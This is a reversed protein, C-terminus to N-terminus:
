ETFTDLDLEKNAPNKQKLTIPKKYVKGPFAEPAVEGFNGEPQHVESFSGDKIRLLVAAQEDPVEIVAGDTEWMNGFSDSGANAKRLLM